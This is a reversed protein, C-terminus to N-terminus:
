RMMRLFVTLREFEKKEQPGGGHVVGNGNVGGEHAAARAAVMQFDIKTLGSTLKIDYALESPSSQPSPGLPTKQTGFLAVLKTRRQISNPLIHLLLSLYSQSAPVHVVVSQQRVVPSAPIHLIFKPNSGLSPHSQIRLNKILADSVGAFIFTLYQFNKSLIYFHFSYNSEDPKRFLSQLSPRNPRQQLNHQQIPYALGAAHASNGRSSQNMLSSGDTQPGMVRSPSASIAKSPIPSKQTGGLRSSDPTNLRATSDRKHM